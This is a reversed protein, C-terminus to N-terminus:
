LQSRYLQLVNSFDKGLGITFTLNLKSSEFDM